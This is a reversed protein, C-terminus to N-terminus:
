FRHCTIISTKLPLIKSSSKPFPTLIPLIVDKVKTLGQSATLWCLCILLMIRLVQFECFIPNHLLIGESTCYFDKRSVLLTRDRICWYAGEINESASTEPCLFLVAEHCRVLGLCTYTTLKRWEMQSNEFSDLLSLQKFSWHM